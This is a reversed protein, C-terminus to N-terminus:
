PQNAQDPSFFVKFRDFNVFKSFLYITVVTKIGNKMMKLESLLMERSKDTFHSVLDVLDLCRKSLNKKTM